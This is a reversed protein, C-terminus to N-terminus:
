TLNLPPLGAAIRALAPQLQRKGDRLSFTQHGPLFVDFALEALREITRMSQIVSCDPVDQLIIRGGFFVADGALLHTRGGHNFWFSIHGECHGPTEVVTVVLDGVAIQSGEAVVRDVRAAQYRYDAPYTGARRFKELSTDLAPADAVAAATHSTGWTTLTLQAQLAAAGGSHDAHKHTLLLHRIQGPDFGARRVQELILPIGMGAGTDVLALESGGDLLYVHCDFDDTLSFGNRGSGVLHVRETLQM